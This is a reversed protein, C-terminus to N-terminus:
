KYTAEMKKLYCRYGETTEAMHKFGFGGYTNEKIKAKLELDSFDEGNDFTIFANFVNKNIELTIECGPRFAESAVADSIPVGNGNKYQYLRFNVKGDDAATSEIRIGYGNQEVPDYKIYIEEYQHAGDFGNGNACEPELITHLTMKEIIESSNYYVGCGMNETLLGYKGDVLSQESVLGERVTFYGPLMDYNPKDDVTKADLIVKNTEINDEKIVESIYQIEQGMYSNNHKPRIVVKIYKGVDAGTLLIRKTPEGNRSVAIRRCEEETTKKFFNVMAFRSKEIKGLRYWEIQSQDINDGLNDLEYDLVAYGNEFKITPEKSFKPSPIYETLVQVHCEAYTGDDLTVSVTGELIDNTENKGMVSLVRLNEESDTEKIGVKIFSSSKVFFGQTDEKPLIQFGIFSVDEGSRVIVKETMFIQSNAMKDM